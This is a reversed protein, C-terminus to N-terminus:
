NKLRLFKIIRLKKLFERTRLPFKIGISALHACIKMDLTFYKIVEPLLPEITTKFYLKENKKLLYYLLLYSRYKFLFADMVNIPIVGNFFLEISIFANSANNCGLAPNIKVSVGSDMRHFYLHEDVFFASKSYYAIQTTQIPDEGLTVHIDPFRVKAYIERKVLKNWTVHIMGHSITLMTIYNEIKKTNWIYDTAYSSRNKKDTTQCKCWVFDANTDKIKSYMRELFQPRYTDDHDINAIFEGKSNELGTKRALLTGGNQKHVVIFRSDKAAYEDLTKGTNNDTSGDNILIAEWNTFTQSAISDLCERLYENNTNYVPCIISILGSQEPYKMQPLEYSVQM